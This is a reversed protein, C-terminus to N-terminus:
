DESLHAESPRPPRAHYRWGWLVLGAIVAACFGAIAAPRLDTEGWVVPALAATATLMLGWIALLVFTSRHKALAAVFAAVAFLGYLLQTVAAVKQGLSSADGVANIGEQIGLYGTLVLVAAILLFRLKHWLKVVAVLAKEVCVRM